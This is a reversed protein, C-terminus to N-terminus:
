PNSNLAGISPLAQVGIEAVTLNFGDPALANAAFSFTKDEVTCSGGLVQALTTAGVAGCVVANAAGPVAVTALSVLAGAMLSKTMMRMVTGKTKTVQRPDDLSLEYKKMEVEESLAHSARLTLMLLLRALM